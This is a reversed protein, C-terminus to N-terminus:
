NRYKLFLMAYGIDAGGYCNPIKKAREVYERTLNSKEDLSKLKDVESDFGEDLKRCQAISEAIQQKLVKGDSASVRAYSQDNFFLTNKDDSLALPIVFYVLQSGQVLLPDPSNNKSDDRLDQLLYSDGSQTIELTKPDDGEVEWVGVYDAQPVRSCAALSLALAIASLRKM